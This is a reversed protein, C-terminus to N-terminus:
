VMIAYAVVSSSTKFLSSAHFWVRVSSYNGLRSKHSVYLSDPVLSYFKVKMIMYSIPEQVFHMLQVYLPSPIHENGHKTDLVKQCAEILNSIKTLM